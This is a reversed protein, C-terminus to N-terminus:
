HNFFRSSTTLGSSENWREKGAERNGECPKVRGRALKRAVIATGKWTKEERERERRCEMRSEKEEKREDEQQSRTGNSAARADYRKKARRLVM